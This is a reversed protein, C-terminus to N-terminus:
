WFGDVQLLQDVPSYRGKAAAREKELHLSMIKSPPILHDSRVAARPDKDRVGCPILLDWLTM